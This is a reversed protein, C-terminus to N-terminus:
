RPRLTRAVRLGISESMYGAPQKVRDASRLLAPQNYYTGGRLSRETVAFGAQESPGLAYQERYADHCWEMANGLMDFLGYQNPLLSGVPHSREDANLNCWAYRALLDEDHGFHRECQVGGRAAYEWEEETPLRYGSRELAGPAPRMHIGKPDDPDREYCWEEPPLGAAKSLRNCYLAAEHWSVRLIPCDDTPSRFFQNHDFEPFFRRFQAVTVERSSLAFARSTRREHLGEDSQRAPESKPSGMRFPIDAAFRVLTNGQGDDFWGHADHGSAVAAPLDWRMLLWGASAQVGPHPDTLWTSLRGEFEPSVAKVQSRTYGGLMQLLTAQEEPSDTRMAQSALLGPDIRATAAAAVLRARVEPCRRGELGAWVDEPSGSRLLALAANATRRSAEATHSDVAVGSILAARSHERLAEAFSEAARSYPTEFDTADCALLLQFLAERDDRAYEALIGAAAARQVPTAKKRDQYLEFLSPRLFVALPRLAEIVATSRAPDHVVFDTLGTALRPACFAWQADAEPDGPGDWSTLAIAAPLEHRQSGEGCLLVEWLHPVLTDAHPALRERLAVLLAPRAELIKSTIREADFPGTTVAALALRRDMERQVDPRDSRRAALAELGRPGLDDLAALIPGVRGPEAVLYRDVLEDARRGLEETRLRAGWITLGAIVLVLAAGVMGARRLHHRRARALFEQEATSRSAAHTWLHFRLADWLSPTRTADPDGQWRRAAASLAARARGRRTQQDEREVWERAAVVLVDHALCYSPEDGGDEIRVLLRLEVDLLHLTEDLDRPDLRTQRSLESLRCAAGRIDRGPAPLLTSLVARAGRAHRRVRPSAHTPSFFRALLASAMRQPGGLSRLLDENWTQDKYLEAFMAIQACVVRGDQLLGEVAGEIFRHNGRTFAAPDEPLAGHAQGFAELVRRAHRQDFLDILASNRGEELPLELARMLRNTALWYDDRVILLAQVHLGDCQRLAATLEHDEPEGMGQLWQEFQDFVLLVKAAVPEQRLHGVAEAPSEALGLGFRHRLAKVLTLGTTARTAEVFVVAIDSRLRPLLGAKVLSSKGCGSKGYFLVVPSAQLPDNSDFRRVWHRVSEPTGERDRPGPVLPLFFGADEADFSRLGKPLLATEEPRPAVVSAVLSARLDDAMARATQYRDGARRAIAKLCIRELEPPLESVVSRPRRPEAERIRRATEARREARFPHAGTLFEYLVIGLSFVDSRRDVRHSEGSAQEPSMYAPTGAFSGARAPRIAHLALGFDCLWAHGSEDVLVNAPKVDRHILGRSHAHHLAEAVDAIMAIGEDCSLHGSEFLGALTEGPILKSVVFPRGDAGDGVDYVPVIHPHDLSAAIRAEERAADEAPDVATLVKVAVLRDLRVDRARYVTGMGGEGIAGLIEYHGVRTPAEDSPTATTRMDVVREITTRHHPMLTLLKVAERRAVDRDRWERLLQLLEAVLVPELKPGLRRVEAALDPMERSRLQEEFSECVEDVALADELSLSAADSM